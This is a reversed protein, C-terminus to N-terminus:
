VATSRRRRAPLSLLSPLAVGFFLALGVGLLTEMARELFRAGPPEPSNVLIFTLAIFTTFGPAVYWRSEQTACLAGVVVGVGLGILLDGPALLAFAAAAFAGVLVSIARGIS